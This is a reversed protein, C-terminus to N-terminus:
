DDDLYRNLVDFDHGDDSVLLQYFETGASSSVSSNRPRPGLTIPGSTRKVAQGFSHFGCAHLRSLLSRLRTNFQNKAQEWHAGNCVTTAYEYGVVDIERMAAIYASSNRKSQRPPTAPLTTFVTDVFGSGVDVKTRGDDCIIVKVCAIAVNLLFTQGKFHAPVNRNLLKHMDDLHLFDYVTRHLFEVRADHMRSECRPSGKSHGHIQATLSLVCLFDRCCANIHKVTTAIMEEIDDQTIHKIDMSTAFNAEKITYDGDENKQHLLWFPLFSNLYSSGDLSSLDEQNKSILLALKLAQATASHWTENIRKYISDRFYDELESPFDELCKLLQKSNEGAEIRVKLASVVLAVWLFVGQAKDTVLRVLDDQNSIHSATKLHDRVYQAIDERSLDHLSIRDSLARWANTFVTWPRSSVCLKINPIKALAELETILRDHEMQPSYEDLGDIFICVSVQDCEGVSEIAKVLEDRNWDMALDDSNQALRKACLISLVNALDANRAASLIQHLISQLLGLHSKQLKTGAYWFYHHVFILSRTKSWVRLSDRTRKDNALYKMLTSKGSGAKGSIWFIGDGRVLWNQFPSANEDFSWEFTKRHSEAISFRRYEMNAFCLSRMIGAIKNDFEYRNIAAQLEDHRAHLDNFGRQMRSSHNQLDHRLDDVKLQFEARVRLLASGNEIHNSKMWTRLDQFKVDQNHRTLNVLAIALQSERAQLTKQQSEVVRRKGITAVSKRIASMLTMFKGSHEKPKLTQLQALLSAAERRCHLAANRAATEYPLLKQNGSLSTSIEGTLDLNAQILKSLRENQPLGDAPSQLFCNSQSIVEGTLQLLAAINSALGLATLPDLM